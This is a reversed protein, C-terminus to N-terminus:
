LEGRRVTLNWRFPFWVNIEHRDIRIGWLRVGSERPNARSWEVRTLPRM